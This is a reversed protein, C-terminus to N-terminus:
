VFAAHESDLARFESLLVNKAHAVCHHACSERPDFAQIRAANEKSLWFTRFSRDRIAGLTGSDTYAKDQCTYVTCDAGIVTLFELMPCSSYPREFRDPLAHYHDLVTFGPDDLARCRDIEDAVIESISVHYQNNEIADNGVVCASVKVHRAGISKAITCFDFIHDANERNAVFSFGLSCDEAIAVFREVNKLVRDFLDLRVRRSRAYSAGDWADISVRIWTAHEALAEAVDGRLAAGNTLCGIQIGGAALRRVTEALHPYILPEGGGSFTVARVDMAILDDVIELMKERSIRDRVDMGSGLTLRSARYACYWCTQNCANIPKIRVHIPARLPAGEPASVRAPFGFVKLASYIVSM